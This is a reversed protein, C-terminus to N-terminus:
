QTSTTNATPFAGDSAEIVTVGAFGVIAVPPVCCNVAVPLYESLLVCFMVPWTVQADEAVATAVMLEAPNALPTPAPLVVM